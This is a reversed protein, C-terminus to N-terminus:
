QQENNVLSIGPQTQGAGCLFQCIVLPISALILLIAAMDPFAHALFALPLLWAVNVALVGYLTKRVGFRRALHQYAHLNHPEYIREGRVLRVSITLCGDTLFWGLLIMWVWVSVGQHALALTGLTLGLFSSGVDGMFIRAAPWNIVAFGLSVAALLMAVGNWGGLSGDGGILIVSICVFAAESIAIGDIGDMFNYLNQLWILSVVGFVLGVIGLDVEVGGINLTPFGIFYIVWICGALYMPVRTVWTLPNLDDVFGVLSVALPGLM